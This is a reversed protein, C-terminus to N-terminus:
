YRVAALVYSAPGRPREVIVEDGASKGLLARGLPSDVSIRRHAADAAEPEVIQYEVRAGADDVLAVFAGARVVGSAAVAADAPAPERPPPLRPAVVEEQPADENTFAKSV